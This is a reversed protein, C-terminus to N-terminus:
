ITFGLAKATKLNIVLRFKTPQEVPLDAPKVGKLIRDVYYALRQNPYPSSAGYSMFGGAEAFGNHWFIGPLRHQAALAAIRSQYSRFLIYPLVIFASAGERMAAELAHEIETLLTQVASPPVAAAHVQVGLAQAVRQLAPGYNRLLLPTGLVAIRSVEPVAEKLLEMQKEVLEMSLMTLGTINGGPHAFSQVFGATVPDGAASMVIPITTTARQAAEIAPHSLAVIVDVNLRVLERALDPFREMQREARRWELMITQGETYGLDHLGQRFEEESRDPDSSSYPSLVGVSPLHVAHQVEAALPEMFIGVAPIIMLWVTILWITMELRSWTHRVNGHVRGITMSM